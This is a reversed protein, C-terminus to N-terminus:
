DNPRILEDPLWDSDAPWNPNLVDRLALAADAMRSRSDINGDQVSRWVEVFLKTAADHTDEARILKDVLQPSLDAPIEEFTMIYLNLPARSLVQVEM